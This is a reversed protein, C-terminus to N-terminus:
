VEKIVVGQMNRFKVLPTKGECEKLQDERLNLKVKCYALFGDMFDKNILSSPPTCLGEGQPHSPSCFLFEKGLIKDSIRKGVYYVRNDVVKFFMTSAYRQIAVKKDDDSGKNRKDLVSIETKPHSKPFSIKDGIGMLARVYYPKTDKQDKQEGKPLPVMGKQKLWAKENGINFQDEHFYLFLLSRRYLRPTMYCVNMGSKIISYVVQIRDLAKGGAEFFYCKQAGYEAKLADAIITDTHEVTEGNIKEVTFGGFGKSQRTGFNTVLFFDRIHKSIQELLKPIFCIVTMTVGDVHFVTERYAKKIEEQKAKLAAGHKCKDNTWNTDAVMNAFYMGNIQRKSENFYTKRVDDVKYNDGDIAACMSNGAQSVRANGHASFRMKYDLALKTKDGKVFWTKDIKDEGLKNILFKDLKPKVETARLTAGKEQHQFHIYPTQQKLLVKLEYVM